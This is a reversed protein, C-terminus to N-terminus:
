KSTKGLFSWRFDWNIIIATLLMMLLVNFTHSKLALAPEIM